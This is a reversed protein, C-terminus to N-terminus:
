DAYDIIKWGPTKPNCIVNHPEVDILFIGFQEGLSHVVAEVEERLLMYKERTLKNALKLLTEGAVFEIELVSTGNVLESAAFFRSIDSDKIKSYTRAERKNDSVRGVKFCKRTETHRIAMRGSAGVFKFGFQSVWAKLEADPM